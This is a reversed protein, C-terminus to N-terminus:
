FHCGVTVITFTFNYKQMSGVEQLNRVYQVAPLQILAVPKNRFYLHQYTVRAFFYFKLYTSIKVM